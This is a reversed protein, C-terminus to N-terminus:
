SLKQTILKEHVKNIYNYPGFLYLDHVSSVHVLVCLVGVLWTSVQVAVDQCFWVVEVFVSIAEDRREPKFYNPQWLSRLISVMDLMASDMKPRLVKPCTVIMNHFWSRRRRPIFKISNWIKPHFCWKGTMWTVYDEANYANGSSDAAKSNHALGGLETWDMLWLLGQFQVFFLVRGLVVM